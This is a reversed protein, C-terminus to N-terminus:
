QSDQSFNKHNEETTWAFESMSDVCVAGGGGELRESFNVIM